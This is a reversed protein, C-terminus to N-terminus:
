ICMKGHPRYILNSVERVGAQRWKNQSSSRHLQWRLFPSVFVRWCISCQVQAGLKSMSSALMPCAVATQGRTTARCKPQRHDQSFQGINGALQLLNADKMVEGAKQGCQAEHPWLGVQRMSFDVCNTGTKCLITYSVSSSFESEEGQWCSPRAGLMPSPGAGPWWWIAQSRHSRWSTARSWPPIPAWAGTAARLLLSALSPRWLCWLGACTARTSVAELKLDYRTGRKGKVRPSQFHASTFWSKLFWDTSQVAIRYSIAPFFGHLHLAPTHGSLTKGPCRLGLLFVIWCFFLLECLKHRIQYGVM